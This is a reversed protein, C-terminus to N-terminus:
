KGSIVQPWPTTAALGEGGMREWVEECLHPAFPTLLLIFTRAARAFSARAEEGGDVGDAKTKAFNVLQNLCAHLEELCANYRYDELFATVRRVTRQLCRELAGFRPEMSPSSTAEQARHIMEAHPIILDWVTTLLRQARDVHADSWEVSKLPNAAWLIHLRLVDAGMRQIIESPAVVNGHHKSMKKGSALVADHGYYRRIPEPDSLIGMEFLVRGIFRYLHAYLFSDLGNHFWDVPMWASFDSPRFAFDDDLRTACALFCWVVDFYCDLTDTERRAPRQCRPCSVNRFGPHDSLGYRPHGQFLDEPLTVPLHEEPVAVVGCADCHVM